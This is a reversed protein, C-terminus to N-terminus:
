GRARIVETRAHVVRPDEDNGGSRAIEEALDTAAHVVHKAHVHSKHGKGSKIYDRRDKKKGALVDLEESTIVGRQVEPALLDNMWGREREGGWKIALTLAVVDFVVSGVMSAGAALGGIEAGFGAGANWLCHAIPAAAILLIGRGRNRPTGPRGVFFVIGTCVLATYVVHSFLGAPGRLGFIAQVSAFQDSGFNAVIANYSYTMDESIMFGLGIFAGIVLGDYASRILRPALTMLLVFGSAKAIEETSPGTLAAFWEAAFDHGFLKGELSILAENAIIALAFVAGFYGWVFGAIAVKAPEREYRDNHHIFWWFPLTFLSYLIATEILGEQYAAFTPAYFQFFGVVGFLVLAAYVWFAANHPQVLKFPRGWGSVEIAEARASYLATDTRDTVASM